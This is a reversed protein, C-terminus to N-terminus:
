SVMVRTIPSSRSHHAAQDAVVRQAETGEDAPLPSSQVDWPPWASPTM